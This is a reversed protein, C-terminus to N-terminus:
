LATAAVQFSMGTSTIVVTCKIYEVSITPRVFLWVNLVHNDIDNPTNNSSDCVIQYDYVGNRSKIGEMYSSIMASIITRTSVDNLEFLFDELAVAVAPEVVLLMFRVNMRDLASPRASLTKQGWMLIGRGPAFRFPNIGNDYLYDREGSSFRRRLDLVNVIGRRFGAPPYWLEYNAATKSIIAAEYGDPSVFLSRDNYKDYIKVHPTFIASYSSNLNLINKRYDVIDNLYNASAEKDYPTSLLGFCDGRRQCVADIGQNQYAPTSWGGDLILTLPINDTNAFDDLALLMNSDTVLDGDDGGGLTLATLFQERPYNDTVSINDICSVYNSQNLVDEVYMNIGRGDKAGKTKSCVYSEVLTTVGNYTNYIELLFANPEKCKQEILNMSFSGTGADNLTISTGLEANALTSALKILTSSIHIIYYTTNAVLPAPLVNPSLVSLVVATGTAWNQTVSITGPTSVTTIDVKCGTGGGGTTSLESAVTYGAGATAIRIISKVIPATVATINVVCGRGGGGTTQLGTTVSYGLGATNVSDISMVTPQSIATIDVKCGTGGGGTTALGTAESYGSGAVAISDISTVIGEASVTVQVSGLSADQQVITLVQSGPTYGTGANGTSIEVGVIEGLTDCTVDITGNSGGTQVVTLTQAGQTYDIGGSNITATVIGGLSECVVTLTGASGGNQVVTLTQTGANYGNGANSLAVVALGGNTASVNSSTLAEITKYNYIKISIDNIWDGPSSASLFFSDNDDDFIYSEPALMGVALTTNSQGSGLKKITAGGYLADNVVRRVWLKNSDQLFALASYYALDYSVEIKSNPTFMQLFQSESTCLYPVLPGKKAGPILIGGYVGPFSPVRTSLDVEQMIVQPNM